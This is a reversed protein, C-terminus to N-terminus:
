MKCCSGYWKKFEKALLTKRWKASTKLYNLAIKKIECYVVIPLSLWSMFLASFINFMNVVFSSFAKSKPMSFSTLEHFNNQTQSHIYSHICKIAVFVLFCYVSMTKCLDIQWLLWPCPLKSQIRYEKGRNTMKICLCKFLMSLKFKQQTYM